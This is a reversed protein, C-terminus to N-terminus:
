EIQHTRGLDSINVVITLVSAVPQGNKRGPVFGTQRFMTRIPEAAAQEDDPIDLTVRQVTGSEDIYLKVQIPSRAFLMGDLLSSDPDGIPTPIMDLQSAPLYSNWPDASATQITGAGHRSAAPQDVHEMPSSLGAAPPVTTRSGNSAANGAAAPQLAAPAPEVPVEPLQRHLKAHLLVGPATGTESSNGAGILVASLAIGGLGHVFISLAGAWWFPAPAGTFRPGTIM